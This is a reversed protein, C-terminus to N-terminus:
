LSWKPMLHAVLTSIAVLAVLTSIFLGFWVLQISKLMGISKWPFSEIGYHSAHQPAVDFHPLQFELRVIVNVTLSISKPFTIFGKNVWSDTARNVSATSYVSQVEASLDSGAFSHGSYSVLFDSPSTGTISSSQPLLAGRWQWRERTREPGSQYSM